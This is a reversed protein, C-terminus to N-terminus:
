KIIEALYRGTHSVAARRAVDVPTGEAVIMGGGDGGEPGLDIIWDANRIIELNHEIIVLSYQREVLHRFVNLLNELDALHLGTTPEDFILMTGRGTNHQILHAALKLRQAEGGSLTDTSQGLTLYGLGVDKLPRLRHCIMANGSFFKIADEVTMNFIDNINKGDLKVELVRPGFRKGGCEDCPLQMEPLFHLDYKQTGLGECAECRGAGKVNFSFSGEKLNLAKATRTAALLKRIPSYAEVYTIPNSRNSRGLSLQDVVDMEKIADLGEIKDFEGVDEVPLGREQLYGNHLVNHILTSKGSGSVGTIVVMGYLPIKVDINKLNHARAGHISVFKSPKFGHNLLTSIAIRKGAPVKNAKVNKAHGFFSREKLCRVTEGEATPSEMDAPTGHFVVRGGHSGAKPGMDIVYDAGLIIEPDHEVVIITNMHDRLSYLIDLLRKSDRPHLGVTPEDLVYLTRTLATGLATALNIRQSEGGSLTRTQRNLTLYGLGVRMLYGLRSDIEHYLRGFLAEEDATLHAMVWEAYLDNISMEAFEAINREKPINCRPSWRVALAEPILRQGHCVPCTEYSRYRALFIRVLFDFRWKQLDDFFGQLGKVRGKGNIMLDWQSPTFEAVPIDLPVGLKKMNEFFWKYNPQGLKTKFPEVPKDALTLKRNPIVKNWNTLTVRGFGSCTPCAGIPSNFSFLAPDPKTFVRGCHNCSFGERRLTPEFRESDDAAAVWAEVKGHGIRVAAAISQSLRDRDEPDIKLRDVLVRPEPMLLMKKATVADEQIDVFLRDNAGRDAPPTFLRTFGSRVLEAMLSEPTIKATLTMPAVVYMRRGAATLILENAISQPTDETVLTGCDPCYTKGARAFLLRMYDMIETATGVTSRANTVHNKQDIAIAPPINRIVEVDPRQMKNIFQRAYTSLSEVYRRQGEAFLTDFALSSKGSGSVGSIVTLKFFPIHVDVHKLNHTTANVIDISKSDPLATQPPTKKRLKTKRSVSTKPVKRKEAM